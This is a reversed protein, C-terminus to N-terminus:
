VDVADATESGAVRGPAYGVPRVSVPLVTVSSGEERTFLASFQFFRSARARSRNYVAPLQTSIQVQCFPPSTSSIQLSKTLFAIAFLIFVLHPLPHLTPQLTPYSCSYLPTLISPTSPNNM